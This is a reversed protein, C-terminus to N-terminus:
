RNSLHAREFIHGQNWSMFNILKFSLFLPASTEAALLSTICTMDILSPEASVLRQETRMQFDHADLHQEAHRHARGITLDAQTIAYYPRLQEKLEQERVPDTM